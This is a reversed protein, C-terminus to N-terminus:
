LKSTVFVPATGIVDRATESVFAPGIAQETVVSAAPALVVQV